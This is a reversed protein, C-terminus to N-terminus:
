AGGYGLVSADRGGRRRRNSSFSSSRSCSRWRFRAWSCRSSCSSPRPSSRSRRARASPSTKAEVTPGPLGGGQVLQFVAPMVLAIVALLLMGAQTGAATRDFTQTQHRLSGTLMSIGMVLLINGLISGILSAKVVEQLGADLAFM